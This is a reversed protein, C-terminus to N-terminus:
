PWSASARPLRPIRPDCRRKRLRSPKRSWPREKEPDGQQQYIMASLYLIDATKPDNPDVFKKRIQFAQQYPAIAILRHQLRMHINVLRQLNGAVELAEPSLRQKQWKLLVQAFQRAEEHKGEKM